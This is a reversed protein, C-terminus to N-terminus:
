HLVNPSPLLALLYVFPKIVPASRVVPCELARNFGRRGPQRDGSWPVSKAPARSSWFPRERFVTLSEGRGAGVGREACTRAQEQASPALTTFIRLGTGRLDQDRYDRRLQRAVLKSFLPM